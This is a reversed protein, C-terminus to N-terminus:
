GCRSNRAPGTSGGACPDRPAVFGARPRSTRSARSTVSCSRVGTSRRSGALRRTSSPGCNRVISTWPHDRPNRGRGKREEGPRRASRTRIRTAVRYAVGHLWPGLPDGGRLSGARRLLVLFTAQFADEVDRPEYLLRRCVGLVMPGHLTVLAEFAAEDGLAAFRRLLEGEAVGTASGQNFVRDISRLVSGHNERAMITTGRYFDTRAEGCLYQMSSSTSWPKKRFHWPDCSNSHLSRATPMVDPSRRFADRWRLPAVASTPTGGENTGPRLGEVEFRDHTAVAPRNRPFHPTSDAPHFPRGGQSRWAGM